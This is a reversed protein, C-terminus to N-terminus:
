TGFTRSNRSFAHLLGTFEHIAEELAGANLIEHVDDGIPPPAQRKLRAAVDDVSERSREALRTALVEPPATVHVIRTTPFRTRADPIVARSLNAVVCTGREIEQAIEHAIGYGQGHARWHLAFFGGEARREFEDISIEIHQEGGADRSRTIHRRVFHFGDHDALTQRAGDILSDKGAGSPGVVAVLTGARPPVRNPSGRRM